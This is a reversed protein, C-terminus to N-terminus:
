RLNKPFLHLILKGKEITSWKEDNFKILVLGTTPLNDLTANSIRNILDTLGGNHSVLMLQDEEDPLRHIFSLLDDSTFTYLDDFTKLSTVQDNLHNQLLQATTHARKATSSFIPFNFNIASKFANGVMEADNYAREKVPRQHDTINHNWDSKGHRVLILQKM